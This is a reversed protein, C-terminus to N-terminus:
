APAGLQAQELSIWWCRLEKEFVSPKPLVPRWTISRHRGMWLGVCAPRGASNLYGNEQYRAKEEFAKWVTVLEFWRDPLPMEGLQLMKLASVFWKPADDDAHITVTSSTASTTTAVQLRNREKRPATNARHSPPAPLQTVAPGSRRSNRTRPPSSTNASPLAAKLRKSARGSTGDSKRKGSPPNSSVPTENTSSLLASILPPGSTSGDAIAIDNNVVAAPLPIAPSPISTVPPSASHRHPSSPPPSVHLTFPRPSPPFSRPTAPCSPAPSPHRSPPLSTPLVTPGSPAPSPRRSPISPLEDSSIVTEEPVGNATLSPLSPPTPETLKSAELDCSDFTAGEAELDM